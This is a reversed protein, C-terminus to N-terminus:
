GGAVLRNCGEGLHLDALFLISSRSRAEQAAAPAARCWLATFVAAVVHLGGAMSIFMGKIPAVTTHTTILLIRLPM